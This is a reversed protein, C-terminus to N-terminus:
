LPLRDALRVLGGRGDEVLLDEVAPPLGGGASTALPYVALVAHPWADIEPQAGFRRKHLCVGDKLHPRARLLNVREIRHARAWRFIEYYLASAAGRRLLSAFDSRLGSALFTLTAGRLRCVAAAVIRDKDMVQVVFGERVTAVVEDERRAHGQDGFRWELYPLYFERYFARAASEGSQWRFRFGQQRVKRGYTSEIERRNVLDQGSRLDVAFSLWPLTFFAGAPLLPRLLRNVELYVLGKRGAVLAQLGRWDISCTGSVRAGHIQGLWDLSEGEGAYSVEGDDSTLRAQLLRTTRGLLLVRKALGAVTLWPEGAPERFFGATM